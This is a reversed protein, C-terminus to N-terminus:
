SFKKLVDTLDEPSFPKSLYEDMGAQLYKERDGRLANATLAIIISPRLGKDREIQRIAHTTEFGDMVPMQIDMLVIDFNRQNFREIAIKGNDAVEYDLKLKALNVCAVKQNVVNDEVLLISKKRLQEEDSEHSLYKSNHHKFLASLKILSEQLETIKYPSKVLDFYGLELIEEINLTFNDEALLIMKTDQIFKDNTLMNAFIVADSDPLKSSTIVVNFMRNTGVLELMKSFAEQATGAFHYSCKWKNFFQKFSDQTRKNGDVHLINLNTLKLNADTKSPMENQSEELWVTFTFTSGKGVESDVYIEGGMLEILKKSIVLGLGTGGHKRSNTDDVQIFSQFLKQKGVKSIGIGTDSVSVQLKIKKGNTALLKASINVEGQNTFKIANNTLNLIIQRLRVQDGNLIEPLSSDIRTNLKLNKTELKGAMFGSVEEITEALKFPIIELEIEESEMRSFDFIDNILSMLNNASSKIVKLYSTEDAGFEQDLLIDTLGIIGHMPTRIEHSMKALFDSKTRNANEATIKATLLEQEQQKRLSIDEKTALFHKIKGEKDFIPSINSYDWYLEGNRKRNYFTGKWNRGASIIEWMSKYTETDVKGSKLIRLNKGLIEERSYGTVESFMPNIYEVNGTIDTIVISVPSQEVAHSLKVIQDEAQKIATMDRSISIIGLKEEEPSSFVTKLTDLLVSQGFSNTEWDNQRWSRGSSLVKLDTESNTKARKNDWLDKDTLGRLEDSSKGIFTAYAKNCGLFVGKEDKYYIFDPISNLLSNLFAKEQMIRKEIQFRKKIEDKLLFNSDRLKQTDENNKQSQIDLFKHYRDKVWYLLYLLIFILVGLGIIIKFYLTEKSSNGPVKDPAVLATQPLGSQTQNTAPPDGKPGPMEQMPADQALGADAPTQNVNTEEEISNYVKLFENAKDTLGLALYTDSLNKAIARQTKEDVNETGVKNARNFYKLAEAFNKSLLFVEGYSNLIDAEDKGARGMLHDAEAYCAKAETFWKRDMYVKGLYHWSKAEINLYNNKQSIKIAQDFEFNAKNHEEKRHYVLGLNNHAEAEQQMDKLNLALDLAQDAYESAKTLSIDLYLSSLRNLAGVKSKQDLNDLSRELNEINNQTNGLLSICLILALSVIVQYFNKM